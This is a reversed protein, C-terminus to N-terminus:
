LFALGIFHVVTISEIFIIHIGIVECRIQSWDMNKVSQMAQLSM